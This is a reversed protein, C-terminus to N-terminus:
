FIAKFVKIVTYTMVVGVPILLLPYHMVIEAMKGVGNFIATMVVEFVDLVNKVDAATAPALTTSGAAELVQLMVCVGM